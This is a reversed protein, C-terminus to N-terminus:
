FMSPVQSISTYCNESAIVIKRLIKSISFFPFHCPCALLLQSPLSPLLVPSFLFSNRWLGNGGSNQFNRATKCDGRLRWTRTQKQVRSCAVCLAIGRPCNKSLVHHISEGFFLQQSNTTTKTMNEQRWLKAHTTERCNKERILGIIKNYYNVTPHWEICMWAVTKALCM